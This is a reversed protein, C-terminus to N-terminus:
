SFVVSILNATEFAVPILLDQHFLLVSIYNATQPAAGPILLEQDLFSKQSHIWEM